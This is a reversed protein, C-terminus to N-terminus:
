GNVNITSQLILAEAKRKGIQQAIIKGRNADYYRKHRGPNKREYRLKVMYAKLVKLKRKQYYERQRKRVAQRNQQYYIRDKENLKEINKDRYKKNYRTQNKKRSAKLQKKKVKRYLRLYRLQKERDKYPM